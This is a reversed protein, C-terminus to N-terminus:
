GSAKATVGVKPMAWWALWGLAGIPIEAIHTFIAFVVVGAGAAAPNAGWFVLIVVTSAETFGLGGPTFPIATMLRGIAYAAFLDAVPLDVHVAAMVRWFLLFWLALQGIVGFSMPFWGHKTVTSIRARQDLLLHKLNYPKGKNAGRRMRGVLPGVRQDLQEGLWATWTPRILAVVFGILLLLGIVGGWWAGRRVISPLTDTSRSVAAIGILPLGVRFLVNWIGSVILGTSINRRAFGWSRLMMYTSAMGVAGGGPLINSVASGSVNIISARLHSLGPLAASLTFTYVALGLLMIGMCELTAQPGVLSLHHGIEGWTTKTFWPLAGILVAALAIGLLANIVLRPTLTPMVPPTGDEDDTAHKNGAVIDDIQVSREAANASTAARKSSKM